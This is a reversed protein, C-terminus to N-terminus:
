YQRGYLGNGFWRFDLADTSYITKFGPVSSTSRDLVISSEGKLTVKVPENLGSIYLVVNSNDTQSFAGYTNNRQVGAGTYVFNDLALTYVSNTADHSLTITGSGGDPTYPEGLHDVLNYDNICCYAGDAKVEAIDKRTSLHTLAGALLSLSLAAAPLGVLIRKKM